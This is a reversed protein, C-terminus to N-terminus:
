NYEPEKIINVVDAIIRQGYNCEIHGKIAIPQRRKLSNFLKNDEDYIIVNAINYGENDNDNAVGLTVRISKKNNCKINRQKALLLGVLFVENKLEVCVAKKM